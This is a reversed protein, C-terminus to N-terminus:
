QMGGPGLTNPDPSSIIFHQRITKEKMDSDHQEQYSDGKINGWQSFIGHYTLLKLYIDINYTNRQM